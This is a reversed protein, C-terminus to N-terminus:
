INKNKKSTDASPVGLRLVVGDNSRQGRQAM